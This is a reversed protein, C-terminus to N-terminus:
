GQTHTHTHTHIYIYIYVYTYTYIYETNSSGMPASGARLFRCRPPPIYTYICVYVYLQLRCESRTSEEKLHAYRGCDARGRQNTSARLTRAQKRGQLRTPRQAADDVRPSAGDAGGPQAQAGRGEEEDGGAEERDRKRKRMVLEVGLRVSVSALARGLSPEDAPDTAAARAYLVDGHRLHYLGGVRGGSAATPAAQRDLGVHEYSTAGGASHVLALSLFQGGEAPLLPACSLVVRYQGDTRVAYRGLAPDFCATLNGPEELRFAFGFGGGPLRVPRTSVAPQLNEPRQEM